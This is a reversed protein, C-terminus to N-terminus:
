PARQVVVTGCQKDHFGQHFPDVWTTYALFLQYLFVLVGLGPVAGVIPVTLLAWREIAQDQALPAGDAARRVQLDFIRQGPTANWSRWSAVFYVGSVAAQVLAYILWASGWNFRLLGGGTVDSGYFVFGLGLVTSLVGSVIGVIVFDIVIAVLRVGFAAYALGAAPGRRVGAAPFGPPLPPVPPPAGPPPPSIPPPLGPPPAGPSGANPEPHQPTTM